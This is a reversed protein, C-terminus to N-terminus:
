FLNVMKKQHDEKRGLAQLKVLATVVSVGVTVALWQFKRRGRYFDVGQGLAPSRLRLRVKEDVFAQGFKETWFRV